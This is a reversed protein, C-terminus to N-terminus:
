RHTHQVANVAPVSLLSREIRELIADTANREYAFDDLKLIGRVPPTGHEYHLFAIGKRDWKRKDIRRIENFTIPPHGPATLTDGVMHYRGRTDRLTWGGWFIGFAPLTFALVKQIIIDLDTHKSIQGLEKALEDIRAKDGGGPKSAETAKATELEVARANQAPWKIWGDYAFWLGGGIMLVALILHKWRYAVDPAAVLDGGPDLSPEPQEPAQQQQPDFTQDDTQTM